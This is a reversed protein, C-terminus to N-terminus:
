QGTRLRPVLLVILLDAIVNIVIYAVAILVAIAQVVPINKDNVAEVLSAGIGPYTFVTEIVVLGGVLWQLTLALVQVSPALANRLAYKVIVRRERIGNMRAMQVYDSSIAEVVGARIMRIAFAVAVIVITAVPLVLAKPTTLPTQGPPVLSLTPLWALWIGFILILGSGVVFDPLAIFGLTTTSIAHDAPRGARIGAWVGLLLAIPVLVVMGVLALVITNQMRGIIIDTVPAQAGTISTGLDGHVANWLWEVYRQLLPDDLGLQQRLSAVAEPTGYKGLVKRAPDGPLLETAVFVLFTSVLILGLGVLVRNIVLAVLPHHIALRRLPNRPPRITVTAPSGDAVARRHL